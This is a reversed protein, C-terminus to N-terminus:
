ENLPPGDGAADAGSAFRAGDDFGERQREAAISRM